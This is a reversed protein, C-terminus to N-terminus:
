TWRWRCVILRGGLAPKWSQGGLWPYGYNYTGTAECPLAFVTHFRWGRIGLTRGFRFRDHRQITVLKM